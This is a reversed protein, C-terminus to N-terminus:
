KIFIDGEVFRLWQNIKSSAQLWIYIYIYVPRAACPNVIQMGRERKNM